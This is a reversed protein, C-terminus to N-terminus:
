WDVKFVDSSPEEINKLVMIQRYASLLRMFTEMKFTINGNEIASITKPLVGTRKSVEKQTLSYELRLNKLVASIQYPNRIYYNM